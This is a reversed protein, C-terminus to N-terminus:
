ELRRDIAALVAALVDSTEQCDALDEAVIEERLERLVAARAGAEIIGARLNVAEVGTMARAEAEIAFVARTVHERVMRPGWGTTDFDSRLLRKGAETTPETM